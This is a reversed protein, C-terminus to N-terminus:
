STVDKEWPFRPFSATLVIRSQQMPGTNPRIPWCWLQDVAGHSFDAEECRYVFEAGNIDITLDFEDQELAEKLADLNAKAAITDDGFVAVQLTETVQERRSHVTVAGDITPATAVQRDIVREGGGVEQVVYPPFSLKLDNLGLEDRGITVTM